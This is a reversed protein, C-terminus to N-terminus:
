ALGASVLALLGDFDDVHLFHGADPLTHLTIASREALARLRQQDGASVVSDRGALVFTLAVEGLAREVLPWLDSRDYDAILQEMADLDLGFRLLDGEGRVLNKALWRAIATEVGREELAAIFQNRDAFTRPLARLVGLVRPTLERADRAPRASLGSDLAWVQALSAPRERLLSLAVKGGFSHGIVASVGGMASMVERVDAAAASLTHPPPQAQSDGHMRLDVLVAGWEPRALTLRRAFGQWNSGDGLIGHLFAVWRAPRASPAHMLTYALM